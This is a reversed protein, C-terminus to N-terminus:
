KDITYKETVKMTAMIEGTDRDSLAIEQGEKINDATVKDTSLTIPIPWFLGNAMKMGDCVGEWDARTMFGTLPTFGGIGMMIVDGVERSSLKIQTLTASRKKENTLASGELLLPKLEGGGHPNVLKSM